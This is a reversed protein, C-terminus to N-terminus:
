KKMYKWNRPKGEALWELATEIRKTRTEATKSGAIWEVYEKRHSPSFKEFSESAKKNKKLAALFAAPPMVEETDKKAVKIRPPLAIGEENLRVAEKIYSILIKDSPLGKLSTIKGFHGMSEAESRSITLLKKPDKMISAKWFTIACHEKFAAMSCCMGKYDFHPFGWKIKEEMDPHSQHVLQRFHKLIPQAFKASKAIYADTKKNKM